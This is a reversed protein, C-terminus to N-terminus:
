RLVLVPIHSHTLVHQTESGLLLRKLGKHGHSAMVILDCQHKKAASILAEAVLDSQTTMPTVVVGQADGRTKIGDVVAQAADSWQKEVRDVDKMDVPMTGEFYSRAYRPVVKLAIVTAGALAALSLGHEVAKDSLPSGDTAILICKYM